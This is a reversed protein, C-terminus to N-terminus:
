QIIKFNKKLHMMFLIMLPITVANIGIFYYLYEWFNPIGHNFAWILLGIQLLVLWFGVLSLWVSSMFVFLFVMGKKKTFPLLQWVFSLSVYSGIGLLIFTNVALLKATPVNFLAMLIAVLEIIILLILILNGKTM